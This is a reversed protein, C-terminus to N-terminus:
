FSPFSRLCHWSTAMSIHEILLDHLPCLFCVTRLSFGSLAQGQRGKDEFMGWVKNRNMGSFLWIKNLIRDWLCGNKYCRDKEMGIWSRKLADRSRSVKIIKHFAPGQLQSWTVYPHNTSPSIDCPQSSVPYLCTELRLRFGELWCELSSSPINWFIPLMNIFVSGM